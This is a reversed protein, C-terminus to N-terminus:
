FGTTYLGFWLILLASIIGLGSMIIGLVAIKESKLSKIGVGIGLLGCIIALPLFIYWYKELYNFWNEPFYEIWTITDLVIVGPILSIMGLFLSVIAKRKEESM